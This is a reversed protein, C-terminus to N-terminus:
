ARESAPRGAAAEHFARLRENVDCNAEADMLFGAHPQGDVWLIELGTGDSRRDTRRARRQQEARALQRVTHTPVILDESELILLAEMGELDCM